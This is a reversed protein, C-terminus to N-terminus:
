PAVFFKGFLESGAMGVAENNYQEIPVRVVVKETDSLEFWFEVFGYNGQIEDRPIQTILPLIKAMWNGFMEEDNLDTVPLYIYFDTEMAGFTSHGDAYICDEGFLNVNVKAAPNIASVALDIKEKMGPADRYAWTYACEEYVPVVTPTKILSPITIDTRSPAETVGLSTPTRGRQLVIAGATAMLIIAIIWYGYRKM